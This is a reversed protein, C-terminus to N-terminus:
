LDRKKLREFRATLEDFDPVSNNADETEGGPTSPFDSSGFSNNPPSPLDLGGPTSPFDPFSSRKESNNSPPTPFQPIQMSGKNLTTPPSPFNMTNHTSPPSPFNMTNHTSPPSPFDPINNGMINPTTPFNPPTPFDPFENRTQSFNPVSPFGPMMSPNFTPIPTNNVQPSTNTPYGGATPFTPFEPFSSPTITAVRNQYPPEPFTPFVLGEKNLPAVSSEIKIPEVPIEAKWELNYAKAIENLYQFVLYNEPTQVSLKHVVRTNACNDKNHIADLAFEKGFKAILQERILTLEKVEARPAAYIITCVAERLDMPCERSIQIVGLRALILECFLELIEHAEIIFDERIVGEVKIRASEDKGSKLLESIERKTDKIQNEKKNKQLKLRSIALKLNVKCSNQDFRKGGM